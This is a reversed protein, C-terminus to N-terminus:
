KKPLLGVTSQFFKQPRASQTEATAREAHRQKLDDLNAQCQPCGVVNLHFALYDAFEADLVELLFAGLEQRSPCTVRNRRWIAGLSHAGADRRATLERVRNLLTPNDRLAQEIRVLDAAPLAEDLYRELDEDSITPASSPRPKSM